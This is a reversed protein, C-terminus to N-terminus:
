SEKRRKQGRKPRSLVHRRLYDDTMPTGNDSLVALVLGRARSDHRGPRRNKLGARVIRRIRVIDPSGPKADWADILVTAASLGSELCGLLAEYFERIETVRKARVELTAGLARLPQPGRPGQRPLGLSERRDRLQRLVRKAVRRPKRITKELWLDVLRGMEDDSLDRVRKWLDEDDVYIGDPDIVFGLVSKKKIPM